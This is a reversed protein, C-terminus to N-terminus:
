IIGKKHTGTNFKKKRKKFEKIFHKFRDGVEPIWEFRKWINMCLNCMYWSIGDYVIPDELGTVDNNSLKKKCHPCKM